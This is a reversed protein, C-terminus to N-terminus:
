SLRGQSKGTNMANGSINMSNAKAAGHAYGTSHVRSRGLKNVPGGANAKMYDNVDAAARNFRVLATGTEDSEMRKKEEEFRAGIRDVFGLLFAARYGRCRTVDGEDRCKYFFANYELTAIKEASRVLTVLLYEAIQRNSESGVLVIRSSRPVVMIRCTHARAILSALREIWLVRTKRVPIDQWDVYHQDVPESKREEEFQIDTMELRHENLLRNVAEAFTQAELDSGIERCSEAKMYLKKIKDLIKAIDTM